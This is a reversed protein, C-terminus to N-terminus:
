KLVSLELFTRNKCSLKFNPFERGLKEIKFAGYFQKLFLKGINIKSKIETRKMKGFRKVEKKCQPRITKQEM